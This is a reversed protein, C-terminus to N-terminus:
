FPRTECFEECVQAANVIFARASCVGLGRFFATWGEQRYMEMAIVSVGRRAASPARESMANTSVLSQQEARVAHFDQTQLRTKLADLPFISAWTVVGAIGGCLLVTLGPYREAQTKGLM